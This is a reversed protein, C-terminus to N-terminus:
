TESRDKASRSKVGIPARAPEGDRRPYMKPTASRKELVIVRGTPTNVTAAHVAKLQHLAEGAEALEEDAKQGKILLVLGGESKAFPVTLEALVALRGVARATVADYSERHGGARGAASREGRDQGLQEARSQIVTLNKLNLAASTARLFEVKKGTAELLTFSLHPMVVALPVGPLGGGSGVDIVKAGEALDALMPLLTLSDLIHKTWADQVDTIATLNVADNAKLLMALYRGLREVDDADFEIGLEAAAKLFSEPAPLASLNTFDFSIPARDPHPAAPRAHPPKKDGPHRV